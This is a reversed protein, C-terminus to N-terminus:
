VSLMKVYQEHWKEWENKRADLTNGDLLAAIVDLCVHWGALDKATHPTLTHITEILVLRCGEKEPYLEFRVQDEGWTFELISEKKLATITMEEFTGDQM